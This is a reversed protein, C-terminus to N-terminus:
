FGVSLHHLARFREVVAEHSNSDSLWALVTRTKASAITNTVALLITLVHTADLETISRYVSVTESARAM